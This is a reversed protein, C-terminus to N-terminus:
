RTASHPLYGEEPIYHPVHRVGGGEGGGGGGGGSGGGFRCKASWVRLKFNSICTETRM